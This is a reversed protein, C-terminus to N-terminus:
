VFPQWQLLCGLLLGFGALEDSTSNASAEPASASRVGLVAPLLVLGRGAVDSASAKNAASTKPEFASGTRYRRRARYCGCGTSSLLVLAVQVHPARM